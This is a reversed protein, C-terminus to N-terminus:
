MKVFQKVTKENSDTLIEVFYVGAGYNSVDITQSVTVQNKDIVQDSMLRRNADYIQIRLKGNANETYQLTLPGQTPNPYILLTGATGKQNEVTVKITKVSSAGKNDTVKLQFTYIGTTLKSVKAISTNGNSIVAQGPGSVQTWQYSVIVGDPDSSTNGHLLTSDVPLLLVIDSETRAVPTQNVTAPPPAANVKVTINDTATAGNNDTVTLKFVYTGQVLNSLGTTVASSNALTFTAPGSVRTWAYTTITGDADSGSG